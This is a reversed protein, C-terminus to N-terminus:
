WCMIVQDPSRPAIANASAIFFVDVSPLCTRGEIKTKLTGNNNNRKQNSLRRRMHAASELPRKKPWGATKKNQLDDRGRRQDDDHERHPHKPAARHGHHLQKPDWVLGILRVIELLHLYPHEAVAQCNAAM